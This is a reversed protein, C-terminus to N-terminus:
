LWCPCSCPGITLLLAVCVALLATARSPATARIVELASLYLLITSWNTLMTAVGLVYFAPPRAARLRVELWQPRDAPHDDDSRLYRWGLGLLVLAV